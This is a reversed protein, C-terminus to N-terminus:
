HMDDHLDHVSGDPAIADLRVIRRAGIPSRQRAVGHGVQLTFPITQPADANFAAPQMWFDHAAGSLPLVLAIAAAMRLLYDAHASMRHSGAFRRRDGASRAPHRAVGGRCVDLEAARM